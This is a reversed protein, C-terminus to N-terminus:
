WSQWGVPRGIDWAGDTFTAEFFGKPSDGLAALVAPTLRQERMNQHGKAYVLGVDPRQERPRSSFLPVQVKVIAM